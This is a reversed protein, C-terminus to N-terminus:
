AERAFRIWVFAGIILTVYLPAVVLWFWEIPSGAIWNVALCGLTTLIGCGLVILVSLRQRRKRQQRPTLGTNGNAM